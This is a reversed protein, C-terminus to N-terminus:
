TLAMSLTWMMLVVFDDCMLKVGGLEAYIPIPASKTWAKWEGICEDILEVSAGRRRQSERYIESHGGKDDLLDWVEIGM